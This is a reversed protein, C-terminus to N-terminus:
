EKPPLMKVLEIAKSIHVYEYIGAISVPVTLDEKRVTLNYGNIRFTAGIDDTERTIDFGFLIKNEVLANHIKSYEEVQKDHIIAAENNEKKTRKAMNRARTALKAIDRKDAMNYECDVPKSIFQSKFTVGITTPSGYFDYSYAYCKTHQLKLLYSVESVKKFGYRKLTRHLVAKAEDETMIQESMM